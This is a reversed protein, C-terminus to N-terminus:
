SAFDPLLNITRLFETKSLKNNGDLDAEDLVRQAVKRMEEISLKKEGVIARLINVIDSRDIFILQAFELHSRAQNFRVSVSSFGFQFRVSDCLM